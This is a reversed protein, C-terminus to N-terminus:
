ACSIGAAAMNGLSDEMMGGPIQELDVARTGVRSAENVRKRDM